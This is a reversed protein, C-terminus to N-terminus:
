RPEHADRAASMEHAFEAARDNFQQRAGEHVFVALYGRARSAAVYLDASLTAEDFGEVNTLLVVDSELGKFGGITAYGIASGNTEWADIGLESVRFGDMGSRIATHEFRNRGLIVIDAPSVHDSLLRRVLRSVKRAQDRDDTYWLLEVEPGELKLTEALHAGSLLATNVAIPATNRCNITLLYEAAGTSKLRQLGELAVGHFLNQNTDLFIRWTGGRLGGALLGDVVDLYMPRILDQGEDIIVADYRGLEDLQLLAEEALKPYHVEFLDAEELDPLRDRLGARRILDVLLSHFSSVTVNPEDRVTGTVFHALRRNLCLFLTKNGIRAQRRAEEVALITKGTGAGGRILVRENTALGDLAAYQETTLQIIENRIDRLRARLSPRLDFDGRIANVIAARAPVDLQRIARGLRQSWHDALHRMYAHFPHAGSDEDYVVSEDVDAGRITFPIDPTAVGWGVIVDAALARSTLLFERLAASGTGVQEFPGEYKYHEVDDGDTFVWMGDRRTVRGGKVELCFVGLPGVLVFDLEAWPKRRHGVLGVSHLVTWEDDLEVRIRDFLKREAKSPTAPDVEPPLM